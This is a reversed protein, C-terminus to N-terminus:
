QGAAAPSTAPVLLTWGSQNKLGNNFERQLVGGPYSYQEITGFAVNKYCGTHELVDGVFVATKRRNLALGIWNDCSVNGQIISTPKTAGKPFTDVSPAINASPSHVGQETVVLTGDELVEIGGPDTTLTIGLSKPQTSGNPFEDVAGTYGTKSQYTVFVNKRDDVAVWGCCTGNTDELKGTPTDSGPAFVWVEAATNSYCGTGSCEDTVYATGDEAVAVGVPTDTVGSLTRSPSTQGPAYVLVSPQRGNTNLAVWVNGAADVHVSNPAYPSTSLFGVLQHHLQSYIEVGSAYWNAVYLLRNTALGPQIWSRSPLRAGPASPRSAAAFRAVRQSGFAFTPSAAIPTSPQVASCGAISAVAALSAVAVLKASLEKTM